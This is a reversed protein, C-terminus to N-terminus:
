LLPFDVFVFCEVGVFASSSGVAPFSVLRLVQGMLVRFVVLRRALKWVFSPSLDCDVFVQVQVAFFEFVLLHDLLDEVFLILLLLHEWELRGDVRFARTQRLSFIGAHLYFEFIPITSM